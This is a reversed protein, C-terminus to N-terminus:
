PFTTPTTDYDPKRAGTRDDYIAHGTGTKTSNGAINANTDNTNGYITGGGVIFSGTDNAVYVGGGKVDATNGAISGGTMTFSASRQIYVGGGDTEAMNGSISGSEMILSSRFVAVLGGGYGTGASVGKELTAHNGSIEGGKMILTSEGTLLVGGGYGSYVKNGSIKSGPYMTLTSFKLGVGGANNGVDGVNTTGVENDSIVAGSFMEITCGDADLGGGNVRGYNETIVGGNMTFRSARLTVGGVMYATNNIISSGPEMVLVGREMYVGGSDSAAVDYSENGTVTTGPGLTLTAGSAYVGGGTQKGGTIEIDQFAIDAGPGLYLVRRKDAASSGVTLVGPKSSDKGRITIRNRTKGLYFASDSRGPYKPNGPGNGGIAWSLEGMVVVTRIEPSLGRGAKAVAKALTKYPAAETGNGAEDDGANSVYVIGGDAPNASNFGNETEWADPFGDGDSDQQTAEIEEGKFFFEHSRNLAIEAPPDAQYVEIATSSIWTDKVRYWLTCYGSTETHVEWPEDGAALDLGEWSQEVEGEATRLELGELIYAEDASVNSVRLHATGKEIFTEGTDVPQFCDALILSLTVLLCLTSRNKGLCIKM